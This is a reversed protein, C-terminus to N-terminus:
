NTIDSQSSIGEDAVFTITGNFSNPSQGAADVILNLVVKEGTGLTVPEVTTDNDGGDYAVNDSSPGGSGSSTAEITVFDEGAGADTIDVYFGVEQTGRNEVVLLDNIRTTANSNFGAGGGAVSSGDGDDASFDLSVAGGSKEVYQSNGSNSVSNISLFADSDGAVEVEVSRDAQVSTFAGTSVATAGGVAVSGLAALMKRRQM